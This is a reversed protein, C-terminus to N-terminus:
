FCITEVFGMLLYWNKNTQEIPLAQHDLFLDFSFRIFPVDLRQQLALALTTKGSSSPGNIVIIKGPTISNEM